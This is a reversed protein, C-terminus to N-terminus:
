PKMRSAYLTLPWASAASGAEGTRLLELNSCASRPWRSPCRRVRLRDALAQARLHTGPPAGEAHLWEVIPRPISRELAM